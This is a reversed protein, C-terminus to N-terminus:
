PKGLRFVVGASIRPANVAGNSSDSQSFNQRVYDVQILRVWLHKNVKVDLGGGLAMAFVTESSILSGGGPCPGPAPCLASTVDSITSGQVEGFLAHVFPTVRPIRRFSYQPGFLFMTGSAGSGVVPTPASSSANYQHGSFDAVVGWSKYNVAVAANWGNASTQVFSTPGTNGLYSYGGFFEVNQARATSALCLLLVALPIRVRM